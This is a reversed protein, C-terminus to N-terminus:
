MPPAEAEVPNAETIRVAVPDVKSRAVLLTVKLAVLVVRVPVAMNFMPDPVM